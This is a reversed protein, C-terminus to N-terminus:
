DKLTLFFYYEPKFNTPNYKVKGSELSFGATCYLVIFIYLLVFVNIVTAFFYINDGANGTSYVLISDIEHGNPSEDSIFIIFIM